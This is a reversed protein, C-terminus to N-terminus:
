EQITGTTDKSVEIVRIDNGTTSAIGYVIMNYGADIVNSFSGASVPIGNATTVDSGGYYITNSSNNYIQLARRNNLQGYGPLTTRTTGVTTATTKVYGQLPLININTVPQPVMTPKNYLANVADTVKGVASVVSDNDRGTSLNNIKEGLRELLDALEKNDSKIVEPIKITPIKIQPQPMTQVAYIMKDFSSKLDEFYKQLERFNKVEIAPQRTVEVEGKIQFLKPLIFPKRLLDYIMALGSGLKSVRDLLEKEEERKVVLKLVEEDGKSSNQLASIVSDRMASALNKERQQQAFKARAAYDIVM